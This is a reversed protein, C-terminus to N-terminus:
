GLLALAEDAARARGRGEVILGKFVLRGDLQFFGNRLRLATVPATSQEDAAIAVIADGRLRVASRAHMLVVWERERDPATNSTVGEPYAGDEALASTDAGSSGSSSLAIDRPVGVARTPRGSFSGPM